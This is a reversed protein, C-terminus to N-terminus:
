KAGGFNESKPLKQKITRQQDHNKKIWVDVTGQTNRRQQQGIM